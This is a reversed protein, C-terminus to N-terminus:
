MVSCKKGEKRSKVKAVVEKAAAVFTEQVNSKSKASSEFFTFGGYKAALKKAEDVPVLRENELDCKNAVIVIAAESAANPFQEEEVERTTLIQKIFTEVEDFSNRNNISYVIVYGEAHRIYQDRLTHFEEQGATDLIDLVVERGDITLEKRYSDELTPDYCEVFVGQILQVILASKGVGGSGFVVLKIEESQDEKKSSKKPAKPKAKKTSM